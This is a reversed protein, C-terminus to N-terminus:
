TRNMDVLSSRATSGVQIEEMAEALEHNKNKLKTRYLQEEGHQTVVNVRQAELQMKYDSIDQRM